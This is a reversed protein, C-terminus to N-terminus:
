EIKPNALSINIAQIQEFCNHVVTAYGLQGNRYNSRIEPKCDCHIFTPDFTMGEMLKGHPKIDTEPVVYIFVSGEIQHWKTM